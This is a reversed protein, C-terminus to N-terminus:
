LYSFTYRNRGGQKSIYLMEDARKIYDSSCQVYNIKGTTVGISITVFKEVDSNEHLINCRKINELLKEAIICAGNRDTYPLVVAFEEGGYRAVFDTDRVITKSLTEAIIKLCTDGKEHGYTDNFQKFRDIDVMMMSLSSDTRSLSKLLRALNEDFYRRNYIGTLADYYIKEAETKLLKIENEMKKINRLDYFYGLGIFKDGQKIRTLTLECPISEYLSSRYMCETKINEGNLVCKMNDIMTEHSNSKNNQDVPMILNPNNLYQERTIEFMKVLADNCDIIKHKDDFVMLGIPAAEFSKRQFETLKAAEQEIEERIITKALLRASLEMIELEASGEDYFNDTTHNQLTIAGWFAGRYFVPAIFISKIGFTKLFATEEESMDDTRANIHYGQSLIAFWDTFVHNEPLVAMAGDIDTTGGKERDWLYTMGLRRGSDLNKYRVISVRDLKIAEAIVSIGHTMINEFKAEGHSMFIELATNLADVMAARRKITELMQNKEHIDELAGAVRLPVGNSDRLTTGFAHFCRYEGTKLKLRYELNYPTKGTHDRIHAEFNKLTREKDEPHLADSWSRLLNPFDEENLYGLMQRFEQSWIFKNQPNIPDESIVNMDWLAIGLADNALKYKIIDYEFDNSM